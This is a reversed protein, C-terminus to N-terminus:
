SNKPSVQLYWGNVFIEGLFYVQQVTDWWKKLFLMSKSKSQQRDQNIDMTGTRASTYGRCDM